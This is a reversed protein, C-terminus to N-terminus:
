RDLAIALRELETKSRTDLYSAAAALLGRVAEAAAPAEQASADIVQLLTTRVNAPLTMTSLWTRAQVAREARSHAALGREPHADFALRAALFTALAVERQGGLPARGALAAIAPFRFPTTAM